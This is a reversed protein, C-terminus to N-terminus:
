SDAILDKRNEVLWKLFRPTESSLSGDHLLLNNISRVLYQIAETELEIEICEDDKIDRWHKLWNRAKNLHDQSVIKAEIGYEKSLKERLKNFTNDGRLTAGIIEESAGALTIAPIYAKHDLFLRIAWDIQDVAADIKTICYKM